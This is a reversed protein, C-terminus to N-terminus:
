AADELHEIDDPNDADHEAQQQKCAAAADAQSAYYIENMAWASPQLSFANNGESAVIVPRGGIEIVDLVQRPEYKTSGYPAVDVVLWKGKIYKALSEAESM